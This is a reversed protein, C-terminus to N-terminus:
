LRVVQWALSLATLMALAQQRRPAGGPLAVAWPCAKLHCVQLDFRAGACNRGNGQPQVSVSRERRQQGDGCTRSCEQWVTWDGWKCDVRQPAASANGPLGVPGQDGPPGADGAPGRPGEPGRPGPLGPFGLAGRQGVLGAPGRAGPRGPLGPLGVLGGVGRPGAGGRRDMTPPVAGAVEESRDFIDDAVASDLPPKTPRQELRRSYDIIQRGITATRNGQFLKDWVPTVTAPTLATKCTCCMENSRFDDDDYNGCWGPNGVYDSCGDGTSDTPGHNDDTCDQTLATKCTCCMQNSRFDDDDYNGCRSPHGVYDSCGDGSTDTPGHNDDTCDKKYEEFWKDFATEFPPNERESEGKAVFVKDMFSDGQRQQERRHRAALAQRHEIMNASREMGDDDPFSLAAQDNLSQVVTSRRRSRPARPARRERRERRARRAHRREADGAAAMEHGAERRVLARHRNHGGSAGGAGAGGPSAEAKPAARLCAALALVRVLLLAKAWAARRPRAAQPGFARPAAMAGRGAACGADRQRM